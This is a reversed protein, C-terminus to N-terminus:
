KTAPANTLVRPSFHECWLHYSSQRSLFAHVV